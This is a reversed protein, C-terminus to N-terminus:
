LTTNTEAPYCLSDAICICIDGYVRGRTDQASQGTSHLIFGTMGALIVKERTRKTKKNAENAKNKNKKDRGISEQPSWM